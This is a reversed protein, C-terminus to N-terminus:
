INSYETSCLIVYCVTSCLILLGGEKLVGVVFSCNSETLAFLQPAAFKQLDLHLACTGAEPQSVGASTILGLLCVSTPQM